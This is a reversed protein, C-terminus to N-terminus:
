ARGKRLKRWFKKTARKRREARNLYGPNFYALWKGAGGPTAIYSLDSM